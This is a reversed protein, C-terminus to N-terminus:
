WLLPSETRLRQPKTIQVYAVVAVPRGFTAASHLHPRKMVCAEGNVSSHPISNCPISNCPISICPTTDDGDFALCGMDEHQGSGPPHVHYWWHARQTPCVAALFRAEIKFKLQPCSPIQIHDDTAVTTFIAERVHRGAIVRRSHRLFGEVWLIHVLLNQCRLVVLVLLARSVRSVESNEWLRLHMLGHNAPEMWTQLRVVAGCLVCLVRGLVWLVWLVWLVVLEGCLELVALPKLVVRLFCLRRLKWRAEFRCFVTLVHFAWSAVFAHWAVSTQTTPGPTGLSVGAVLIGLAVAQGTVKQFRWLANCANGFLLFGKSMHSSIQVGFSSFSSCSSCSPIPGQVKRCNQLSTPNVPDRGHRHLGHRLWRNWLHCLKQGKPQQVWRHVTGRTWYVRLELILIAPRVHGILIFLWLCAPLFKVAALKINNYYPPCRFCQFSVEQFQIDFDMTSEHLYQNLHKNWMTEGRLQWPRSFDLM